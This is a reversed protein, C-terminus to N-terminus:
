KQKNKLNDLKIILANYMQKRESWQTSNINKSNFLWAALNDANSQQRNIERELAKKYVKHSLPGRIGSMGKEHTITLENSKPNYNVTAKM